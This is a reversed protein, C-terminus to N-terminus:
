PERVAADPTEALQADLAGLRLEAAARGERCADPQAPEAPLTALPGLPGARPFPTAHAYYAVFLDTSRAAQEPTVPGLEQAALGFLPLLSPVFSPNIRGKSGERLTRLVIERTESEPVDRIWAALQTQCERPRHLCLQGVLRGRESEPLRGGFREAFRRQLSNRSGVRAAELDATAPLM